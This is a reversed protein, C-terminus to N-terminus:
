VTNYSEKEAWGGATSAKVICGKRGKAKFSRIKFTATRPLWAGRHCKGRKDIRVASTSYPAHVKPLQTVLSM